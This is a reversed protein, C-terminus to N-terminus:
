VPSEEPLERVLADLFGGVMAQGNQPTVVAMTLAGDYGSLCIHLAPLEMFPPLIHASLPTHEAFLLRSKDLRGENSLTLPRAPKADSRSRRRQTARVLDQYSQRRVFLHGVVAIAVGPWSQKRRRTLASVNALTEDFTRGLNRILYPCEFSSLNCITDRQRDDLCWRRLDVTIGIRLASKGDWPAYSVLARYAAALFVDNLTAGGRAKGYRSLFSVHASPLHKLVPVFPGVSENPLPLFHTRRPFLRPATFSAFDWFIRPYARTPISSLIQAFDRTADNRHSPRYGADRRLQSYLAGLRGTLFQLAVGDGVAHTMKVLLRDGREGRWLCLAVQVGRTANLGTSRVREYEDSSRATRLIARQSKPVSQWHPGPPDVVLRCGLVPEVDLLLDSAQTLLHEDLNGAFELELGIAM